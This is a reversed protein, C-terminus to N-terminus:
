RQSGTNLLEIFELNEADTVGASRAPNYNLEVIRVPFPEPVLFTKDVLPSWDNATGSNDFFIRAKVNRRRRSISDAGAYLTRRRTCAAAPWGRIPATPRTTSSRGAPSGGPKTM